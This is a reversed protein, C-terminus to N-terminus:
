AWILWINILCPRLCCWLQGLLLWSRIFDDLQDKDQKLDQASQKIPTIDFNIGILRQAQRSVVQLGWQKGSSHKRLRLGRWCVVGAM